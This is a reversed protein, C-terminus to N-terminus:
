GIAVHAAAEVARKYADRKSKARENAVVTGDRLVVYSWCGDPLKVNLWLENAKAQTRARVSFGAGGLSGDERRELLRWGRSPAGM